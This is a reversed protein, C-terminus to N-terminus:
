MRVPSNRMNAGKVVSQRPDARILCPLDERREPFGTTAQKCDNRRFAPAVM